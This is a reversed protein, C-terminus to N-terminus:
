TVRASRLAPTGLLALIRAAQRSPGRNRAGHPKNPRSIRRVGRVRRPTPTGNSRVTTPVIDVHTPLLPASSIFNSARCAPSPERRRETSVEAITRAAHVIASAASAGALASAAGSGLMELTVGASPGNAPPVDTSIRPARKVPAVTTLNPEAFAVLKVTMEPLRIVALEGAPVPMTSTLTVVALPVLALPGASWNAYPGVTVLTLGLRPGALPPVETLMEPESRASAVATSNPEVGAALKLALECLEIM